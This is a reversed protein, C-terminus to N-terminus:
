TRLRGLKGPKGSEAISFAYLDYRHTEPNTIVSDLRVSSLMNWACAQQLTNQNKMVMTRM